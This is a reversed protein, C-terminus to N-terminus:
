GVVVAAPPCLFAGTLAVVSSAVAKERSRTPAGIALVRQANVAPCTEVQPPAHFELCLTQGFPQTHHAVSSWLHLSKVPAIATPQQYAPLVLPSVVFHRM